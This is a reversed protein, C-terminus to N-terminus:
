KTMFHPIDPGDADDQRQVEPLGPASVAVVHGHVLGAADEHDTVAADGGEAGGAGGKPRFKERPCGMRYRGAVAADVDAL